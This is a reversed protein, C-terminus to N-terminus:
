PLRRLDVAVIGKVKGTDKDRQFFELFTRSAPPLEARASSPFLEGGYKAKQALRKNSFDLLVPDLKAASVGAPEWCADFDGPQSKTTVFSGNVYLTSCGAVKLALAARYLGDLLRARVSGQGFAAALQEWTAEHVGPPLKGDSDLEPIM